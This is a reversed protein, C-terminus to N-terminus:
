HFVEFLAAVPKNSRRECLESIRLRTSLSEGSDHWPDGFAVAQSQVRCLLPSGKRRRRWWHLADPLGSSDFHFSNEHAPVSVPGRCIPTLTWRFTSSRQEASLLLVSLWTFM